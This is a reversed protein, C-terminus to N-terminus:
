RPDDARARGAFIRVIRRAARMPLSAVAPPTPAVQRRAVPAHWLQRMAIDPQEAFADLLAAFRTQFATVAARDYLRGDFVTLCSQPRMVVTLGWPMTRPSYGVTEIKLNGIRPVNEEVLNFILRIEPTQAGQSALEASLLEFPLDSHAETAALTDRAVATWNRFSLEPDVRYHLAILNLFPGFTNHLSPRRRISAYSGIVVNREGTEAALFAALAAQYLAFVTTRQARGLADLRQITKAPVDRRLWTDEVAVASQGDHRLHDLNLPRADVLNKRWWTLEEQHLPMGPGMVDRQWAAYDAYQLQVPALAPPDSRRVAAGYLMSLESMFISNSWKDKILQHIKRTLLHESQSLRILTFRFLPAKAFDIPRVQEERCLRMAEQEADPRASLDVYPLRLPLQLDADSHVIQAPEGDVIEFSTRLLEHRRMITAICNELAERDLVGHVRFIRFQSNAASQEPTQSYKWVREQLFSLPLPRNRDARPQIAGVAATRPARAIHTALEALTPFDVFDQMGIEVGHVAHVHAAIVAAALSDGGLDYFDDGRGVSPLKLADAWIRALATEMETAPAEAGARDVVVQMAALAKRDVKGTQGLPLADLVVFHSPIMFPSLMRRLKRRLVTTALGQGQRAVVYAVLQPTEGATPVVAASSLEPLSLLASEVEPLAVRFGRIKVIDDSRGILELQGAANVRGVDGSRFVPVGRDQSFKAATLADDRWYGAAMFASRVVLEGAEGPPVDSGEDDVLRVEIDGLIDGAPLKGPTVTAGHGLKLQAISGVESSGFSHVFFSASSCLKKFAEFDASIVAETGLRMIRINPFRAADPLAKAFSRFFSATSCFVTTGRDALEGALRPGIRAVDFPQLAAGTALAAWVITLAVGGTLPLLMAVRDEATLNWVGVHALSNHLIGHHTRIVGRPKGTTGSTYVLFGVGGPSASPMPNDDRASVADECNVVACGGILAAQERHAADTVLLTPEADGVIDRLRKVTDGPNLTVVVAAAKLVAIMAAIQPQGHEMLLAVRDGAAVGRTMLTHALRNAQRNLEDYSCSSNQLQVALRDPHSAAMEEFRQSLSVAANQLNAEHSPMM